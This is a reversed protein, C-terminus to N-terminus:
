LAEQGAATPGEVAQARASSAGSVNFLKSRLSRPMSGEVETCM